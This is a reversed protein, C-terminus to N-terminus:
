FKISIEVRQGLKLPAESPLTIRVLLVRTDLPRGPDFPTLTRPSLAEPIVEIEGKWSMGEYGEATIDVTDGVSLHGIDYEDIEAEIRRRDTNAITILQMGMPIVEGEEVNKSIVTGSIPAVIRLKGIIAQIQKIAAEAQGRQAIATELDYSIKEAAQQTIGNEPLLAEARRKESSLLKVLAEAEALKAKAESLAAVQEESAFEAILDGKSIKQQEEVPMRIIRGGTETGVNVQGGPYTTVRGEGRITVVQLSNDVARNTEGADSRTGKCQWLLIAAIVLAIGTLYKLNSKAM